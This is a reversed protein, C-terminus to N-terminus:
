LGIFETYVIPGEVTMTAAKAATNAPNDAVIAAKLTTRQAPTLSQASASASVCLLSLLALAFRLSARM